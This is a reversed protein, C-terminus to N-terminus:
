NQNWQHNRKAENYIEQTKHNYGGLPTRYQRQHLRPSQRSASFVQLWGTRASQGPFFAQFHRLIGLTWHASQQANKTTCSESAAFPMAM